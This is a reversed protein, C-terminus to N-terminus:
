LTKLLLEVILKRQIAKEYTSNIDLIKNLWALEAKFDKKERAELSSQFYDDTLQKILKSRQKAAVRNKSELTLVVDYTGMAASLNGQKEQSKAKELLSGIQIEDSLTSIEKSLKGSSEDLKKAQGLRSSAINFDKKNFAQKALALYSAAANGNLITDNDFEAVNSTRLAVLESYRKESYLQKAQESLSREPGVVAATTTPKESNSVVPKTQIPKPKNSSGSSKLPKEPKAQVTDVAYQKGTNPVKLLEGIPVSSPVEINNFRALSYFKLRDGTYRHAIDMLSEGRKVKHVFYRQGLIDSPPLNIQRELLLGVYSDPVDEFLVELYQLALEEDAVLLADIAKSQLQSTSLKRFEEMWAPEQESNVLLDDDDHEEEPVTVCGSLSLALLTSVISIKLANFLHVKNM